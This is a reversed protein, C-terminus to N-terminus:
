LMGNSQYNEFNSVSSVELWRKQAASYVEFDYTLSSTFSLDGGCLKVIRYPLDLEDLKSQLENIKSEYHNRESDKIVIMQRNLELIQNKYDQLETNKQQFTQEMQQEFLTRKETERKLYTDELEM